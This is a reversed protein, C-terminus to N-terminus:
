QVRRTASHLIGAKRRSDVGSLVRALEELQGIAEYLLEELSELMSTGVFQRLRYLMISVDEDFRFYEASERDTPIRRQRFMRYEELVDEVTKESARRAIDDNGLARTPTIKLLPLCHHLTNPM